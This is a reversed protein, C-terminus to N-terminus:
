DIHVALSLGAAGPNPHQKYLDRAFEAAYCRFATAQACPWGAGRFHTRTTCKATVASTRMSTRSRPSGDANRLLHEPVGRTLMVDAMTGIVGFSNIRCAVRIIPCERTCEDILTM